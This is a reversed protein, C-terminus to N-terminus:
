TQRKSKRPFFIWGVLLSMIAAFQFMVGWVGFYLTVVPKFPVDRFVNSFGDPGLYHYLFYTFAYIALSVAFSCLALIYCKTRKSM